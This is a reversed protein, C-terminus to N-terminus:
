EENAPGNRALAEFEGIMVKMQYVKRDGEKIENELVSRDGAVKNEENQQNRMLEEIAAKQERALTQPPKFEGRRGSAVHADRAYNVQDSIQRQLEIIKEERAETMAKLHAEGAELRAKNEAHTYELQELQRRYSPLLHLARLRDGARVIKDCQHDIEAQSADRDTFCEFQIIRDQEGLNISARIIIGPEALAPVIEPVKHQHGAM